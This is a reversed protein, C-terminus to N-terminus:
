MGLRHGIAAAQVRSTVGLKQLIHTVHLSATKGSIFLAAAIERNSLGKVLLEFVQRERATLRYRDLGDPSAPAAVDALDLRARAALARLEGLLPEAGLRTAIDAASRVLEEARTRASGLLTEAQRWDAYATLYVDQGARAAIGAWPEPRPVDDLRSREARVLDLLLHFPLSCCGVTQEIRELLQVAADIRDDVVERAARLDATAGHLRAWGIADAEVRASLATLELGSALEETGNLARLGRDLAARAGHWERRWCALEAQRGNLRALRRPYAAAFDEDPDDLLADADAFRGRRIMLQAREIKPMRTIGPENEISTMRGSLRDAEDWQGTTLLARILPAAVLPLRTRELGLRRLEATASDASALADDPRGALVAAEFRQYWTMAIAHPDWLDRQALVLSHDLREAAEQHCGLFSKCIGHVYGAWGTQRWAGVQEAVAASEEAEAIGRLLRGSLMSEAAVGFLAEARAPSPKAPIHRSLQEGVARSRELDGAYWLYRGQRDLTTAYREPETEPDLESLLVDTLRVAERERGALWAAEAARALLWGRNTESSSEWLDVARRYHAYAEAPAHATEAAQGANISAALAEPRRRAAHWHHALEAPAVEAEPRSTLAAAVKAHLEEREGPLLEGYVAEHALAHRFAYGDATRVLFRHAVADRLADDVPGTIQRLLAEEVRRGTVAAVRLLQRTAPDVRGVRELIVERVTSPLDDGAGAAVLEETFFPNGDARRVVRDVLGPDPDTGLIDALMLTVQEDDLPGLTEVHDSGLPAASEPGALRRSCLLLVRTSPIRQVLYSLLDGTSRDAWHLDEVVLVVPETGALALLNGAVWEFFRTRDGLDPMLSGAVRDALPESAHGDVVQILGALPAYPVAEAFPLCAGYVVRVGRDRAAAMFEALLRTKGIGAEGEVLITGGDGAVARELADVLRALHPARGVLQQSSVRRSM